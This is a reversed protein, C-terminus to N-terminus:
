GYFGGGILETETLFKIFDFRRQIEAIKKDIDNDRFFIGIVTGTHAVNVGVAGLDKAFNIIDDLNSKHLIKQNASASKEVLDFNLIDPLEEIEFDSRKNFKLTEIEGGYDFIAISLKEPLSFKKILRGTIPNMAVIESYFIGDTPEIQTAFKAIQEAPLNKNCFKSVAKAVAALDASSSAMGKSKPLESTIKIGFNREIQLFNLIKELMQLSKEGLGEVSFFEDSVECTSFKKIPCTILIPEGQYIGQVLEGCSGPVSVKCFM